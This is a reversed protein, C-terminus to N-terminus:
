HQYFALRGAIRRKVSPMTIRSDCNRSPERLTPPSRVWRKDNVTNTSPQHSKKCDLRVLNLANGSRAGRRTLLMRRNPRENGGEHSISRGRYILTPLITPLKGEMNKADGTWSLEYPFNIAFLFPRKVMFSGGGLRGDRFSHLSTEM